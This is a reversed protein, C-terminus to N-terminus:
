LNGGGAASMPSVDVPQIRLDISLPLPQIPAVGDGQAARADLAGVEEISAASLLEALLTTSPRGPVSAGSAMAAQPTLVFRHTFTWKIM